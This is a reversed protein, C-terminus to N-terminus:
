TIRSRLNPIRSPASKWRSDRIESRSDKWGVSSAERDGEGSNQVMRNELFTEAKAAPKTAARDTAENACSGEAESAFPPWVIRTGPAISQTSFDSRDARLSPTISCM